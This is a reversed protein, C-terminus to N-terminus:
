RKAIRTVKEASRGIFYAGIVIMMIDTLNDGLPDTACSWGAWNCILKDWVVLVWIYIVFPLAFLPRIWSSLGGNATEAVLVDRQAELTKIREEAAIRQQATEANQRQAYAEAIQGAITGIGIKALWAFIFM